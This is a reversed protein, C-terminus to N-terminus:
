TKKIRNMTSDIETKYAKIIEKWHHDIIDPNNSLIYYLALKISLRIFSSKSIGYKESLDNLLSMEYPSVKASITIDNTPKFELKITQGRYEM